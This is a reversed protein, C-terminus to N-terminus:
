PITRFVTNKLYVELLLLGFAPFVFYPFLEDFRTYEKVEVKTKELEDIQQYIRKLGKKDKARFYMGGSTEAVKQLTDEDLDNEVLVYRRGFLPDDIPM